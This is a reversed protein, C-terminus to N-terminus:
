SYRDRWIWGKGVIEIVESESHIVYKEGHTQDHDIPLHFLGIQFRGSNAYILNGPVFERIAM